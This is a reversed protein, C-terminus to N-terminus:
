EMNLGQITNPDTPDTKM